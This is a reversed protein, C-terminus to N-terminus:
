EAEIQDLFEYRSFTFPAGSASYLNVPVAEKSYSGSSQGQALTVRTSKVNVPEALVQGDEDLVPPTCLYVYLYSDALAAAGGPLSVTGSVSASGSALMAPEEVLVPEEELVSEEVLVPEEPLEGPEPETGVALAAGPLLGLLLVLTMLLSFWRRTM